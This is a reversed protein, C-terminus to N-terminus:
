GGGGGDRERRMGENRPYRMQEGRVGDGALESQDWDTRDQEQLLRTRLTQVMGDMTLSFGLKM